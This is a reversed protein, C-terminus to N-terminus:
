GLRRRSARRLRRDGAELRAVRLREDRDALGRRVAAVLRLRARGVGDPRAGEGLADGLRVLLELEVGPRMVRVRHGHVLLRGLQHHPRVDGEARQRLELGRDVLPEPALVDRDPDGLVAVLRLGALRGAHRLGLLRRVQRLRDRDGLLVRAHRHEHPEHHAVRRAAQPLAADVPLRAARLGGPRPEGRGGPRQAGDVPLHRDLAAGLVRASM